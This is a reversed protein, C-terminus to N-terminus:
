KKEGEVKPLTLGGQGQYKGKKDAYSITCTGKRIAEIMEKEEEESWAWGLRNIVKNEFWAQRNEVCGASKLFLCQMIGENCYIRVPLPTPNTIEVTWVGEWEPEGPTVNVFIGCRAYTSKGVVVCLVDRPIWFREVTEGLAFGGPPILIHDPPQDRGPCVTNEAVETEELTGIWRCHKCYYEVKRRMNGTESKVPECCLPSLDIPVLANKDFAKPDIEKCLIPSFVGWKYGCRADYGYSTLGYSIKGPRRENAQADTIKIDRAIMYDPLIGM